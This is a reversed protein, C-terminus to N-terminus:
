GFCGWKVGFRGELGGGGEVGGLVEVVLRGKVEGMRSRKGEGRVWKELM